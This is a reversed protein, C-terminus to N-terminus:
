KTASQKSEAAPPAAPDPQADTSTGGKEAHRDGDLDVRIRCKDPLSVGEEVSVWEDFEPALYTFAAGEPLGLSARLESLVLHSSGAGSRDLIRRIRLPKSEDAPAGTHVLFTITRHNGGGGGGGGGGGIGGIGGIGGTHPNPSGGLSGGDGLTTASGSLSTGGDSVDTLGLPLGESGAGRRSDEDDDTAFIKLGESLGHALAADANREEASSAHASSSAHESTAPPARTPSSSL